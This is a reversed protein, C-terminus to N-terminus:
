LPPIEAMAMPLPQKEPKEMSAALSTPFYLDVTNFVCGDFYVRFTIM